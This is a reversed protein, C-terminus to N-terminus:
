ETAKWKNNDFNMDPMIKDPDIELKVLKEKVPIFVKFLRKNNWIEVPYKVTGKEGSTTEYSLTLPMAMQDLNAVVVETGTKDKEELYKVAHIAQDLKYNEVFLAKWFWSLDEGTVNDMTRFFDWPTPHKYAWREIYTKFAYDFRVPGIIENRLLELAYGPKSYLMRGINAEMMADPTTMVPETVESFLYGARVDMKSANSKYEGNNFANASIGNIFTNFGEDMWGYKRENSGVIMPFWTHGFEHDTVNFLSRKKSARHCFVIAPYEMGSINSAVNVAVPYPYPFWTNSYHEISGKIYETSRGWGESSGNEGPYVSMALSTKGGPLNIKAADWVFAASSAWAVDRANALKYRWTLTKGASKAIADDVESDTRIMVTKDSNRAQQMRSQQVATLVESANVLEGGVVVVHAAPATISIDFDGYELYFESPGLYPEANWGQVDDFVCMRPYWQAVAFVEGKKAKVIGCRDAGYEPLVFSYEIKIKVKDGGPKMAQPLRLQMRTDTVVYDVAKDNVLVKTLTYGGEFASKADGYRSRSDVPMRKQGRSDKKFLNQDLQLWLFPLSNPSNNTYTITETATIAHTTENLTAAIQYDARNQWYAPGPEGTAARTPTGGTTYFTPSFLAHPDYKSDLDDNWQASANFIIFAFLFFTFGKKVM